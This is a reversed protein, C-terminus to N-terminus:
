TEFWGIVMNNLLDRPQRHKYAEYFEAQEEKSKLHELAKKNIGGGDTHSGVKEKFHAHWYEEAKLQEDTLQVICFRRYYDRVDPDESESFVQFWYKKNQYRLMG